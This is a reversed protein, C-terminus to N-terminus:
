IEWNKILLHYQKTLIDYIYKDIVCLIYQPYQDKFAQVKHKGSQKWRGKIEIFINNGIYFDPIYKKTIGNLNIDFIQQEYEYQINEFNLIRAFNAEWSSRFAQNLDKRFGNKIPNDFITTLLRNNTKTLLGLARCIKLINYQYNIAIQKYDNNYQNLIYKYLERYDTFKNNFNNMEEVMNFVLPMTIFNMDIDLPINYYKNLYDISQVHHKRAAHWLVRTIQIIQGCINCKCTEDSEYRKDKIIHNINMIDLEMKTRRNTKNGMTINLYNLIDYVYNNLRCSLRAANNNVQALITQFHKICDKVHYRNLEKIIIWFANIDIIYDPNNPINYYKEFYENLTINHNKLLHSQLTNTTYLINNEKCIKCNHYKRVRKM